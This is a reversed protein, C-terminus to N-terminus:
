FRYEGTVWAQLGVGPMREGPMLDGGMVRNYGALHDEYETDFLNDVGAQLGWTDADYGVSANFLGYGSTTQELQTSSVNNQASFGVAEMRARWGNHQYNIGLLIKPPAIRYLNDDIDKREGSIYNALMDFSFEDNLQYNANIDIGMLAADVNAFQMPNSDGMMAAAMIVAPDTSPIGQIYDDIQHYFVRPSITLKDAHYDAGLEFQYATELALSVDGVYTRGDALGGTSQMPVWLYRQQYSAPSQKHAFGMIWSLQPSVQYRGNIVADIGTESHARDANNFRQMLVNVAPMIMAMSHSVQEADSQYYKVRAGLEWHWANFAQQWQVFASYKDDSVGSFNDVLFMPNEPNTIVSDHESLQSDVGWQWQENSISFHADYSTSDANNYRAGMSPMLNRESFNDMGHRADSYALHWNIEWDNLTHIGDFKVRDTRIFDIDMPLAPTGADTTESHLYNIGISENQRTNDALNFRYQGGFVQKDYTTPSIDNGSGTESNDNGHMDDAFVLIGHSDNALNAKGSIATRAGNTQYQGALEASHQEFQVQTQIVNVSGGLTDIGSSVPAIGRYLEVRETMSISAYSLPTDMANPGASALSAGDIKSNVRDGSLGRYQVMGTLPGNANVAAGPLANVAQAIDVTPSIDKPSVLMIPTAVSGSINIVEIIEDAQANCHFLTSLAAVPLASLLSYVSLNLKM